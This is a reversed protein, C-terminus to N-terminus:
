YVTNKDVIIVNDRYDDANVIKGYLLEGNPAFEFNGFFNVIYYGKRTMLTGYPQVLVHGSGGVWLCYYDSDFNIARTLINTNILDNTRNIFERREKDTLKHPQSSLNSSKIYGTAGYTTVVQNYGNEWGISNVPSWGNVWMGTENGWKSPADLLQFDYRVNVFMTEASASICGISFLITLTAILIFLKKKM